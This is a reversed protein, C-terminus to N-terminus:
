SIESLGPNSEPTSDDAPPAPSALSPAKTSASGALSPVFPSKESSLTICPASAPVRAAAWIRALAAAHQEGADQAGAPEVTLVEDFGEAALPRRLEDDMRAIISAIKQESMSLADVGGEHLGRALVRSRAEARQVPLYVALRLDPKQQGELQLWHARQEEDFNCGPTQVPAGGSAWRNREDWFAVRRETTSGPGSRKEGARASPLDAAFAKAKALIYRQVHVCVGKNALPRLAASRPRGNVSLVVIM